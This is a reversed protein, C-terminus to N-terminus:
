KDDDIAPQGIFAKGNRNVYTYGAIVMGVEKIQTQYYNLEDLTYKGNEFGSFTTMQSMVIRNKITVQSPFTFPSFLKEYKRNM